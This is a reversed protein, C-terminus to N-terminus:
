MNNEIFRIPTIKPMACTCLDYSYLRIRCPLGIHTLETDIARNPYLNQYKHEKFYIEGFLYCITTLSASQPPKKANPIQYKSTRSLARAPGDFQVFLCPVEPHRSFFPFFCLVFFHPPFVVVPRM